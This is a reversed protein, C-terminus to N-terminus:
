RTSKNIQAKKTLFRKKSNIRDIIFQHDEGPRCCNFFSQEILQIDELSMCGNILIAFTERAKETNGSIMYWQAPILQDEIKVAAESIVAALSDCRATDGAEQLLRFNHILSPLLIDTDQRALDRNTTLRDLEGELNMNEYVEIAKAVEGVDLFEMAVKEQSSLADRDICSFKRSFEAIKQTAKEIESKISDVKHRYEQESISMKEKVQMLESLLARYKKESESMGIDYYKKRLREIEETKGVVIHLEATQTLNWNKLKDINVVTYGKKYVSIGFIPDGPLAEPFELRFRGDNDSDAPIAGTALVECGAVAKGGSSMETVRGKQTLQAKAPVASLLLSVFAVCISAHIGINSTKGM